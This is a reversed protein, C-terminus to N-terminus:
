LLSPLAACDRACEQFSAFMEGGIFQVTQDLFLIGADAERGNVTRQLQQSTAAQGALNRKMIANRAILMLVVPAAVVVHHTGFTAGANSEKRGFYSFDFLLNAVLM